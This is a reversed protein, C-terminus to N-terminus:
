KNKRVGGWGLIMAARALGGSDGITLVTVLKVNCVVSTIVDSDTHLLIGSFTSLEVLDSRQVKRARGPPVMLILQDLISFLLSKSRRKTNAVRPGHAGDLRILISGVSM